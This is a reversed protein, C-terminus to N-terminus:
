IWEELTYKKNGLLTIVLTILAGAILGGIHAANNINEATFGSYLSFFLSLLLRMLLNSGRKRLNKRGSIVIVLVAGMIGFVAGSAGLSAGFTGNKYDWMVSVINGAIGSFFYMVAYSIHGLDHEVYAGVFLLIIMNSFLHELDAHLFMATIFTYMNKGMVAMESDLCFRDQFAMGGIFFHYIHILINCAVLILTIYSTKLIRAQSKWFATAYDDESIEPGPIDALKQNEHENLNEEFKNM